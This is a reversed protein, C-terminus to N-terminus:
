QFCLKVAFHLIFSVGYHFSKYSISEVQTISSIASLRTISSVRRWSRHLPAVKGAISRIKHTAALQRQVEALSVNIAAFMTKEGGRQNERETSDEFCKKHSTHTWPSFHSRLARCEFGVFIVLRTVARVYTDMMQSIEGRCTVTCVTATFGARAHVSFCASAVRVKPKRLTPAYPATYIQVKRSM